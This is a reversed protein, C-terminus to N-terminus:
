SILEALLDPASIGQQCKGSEIDHVLAVIRENAPCAVAVTKGQRVVAGNLYEVESLKGQSLDWWMSTRVTPDVALMKQAFLRFLFNPLTIFGPIRQAPIATLKPLVLQKKAAVAVWEKMLLAICRRYDRQELMSKVPVDALANVANALNLQLKAALVAQMETSGHVPMLPCNIQSVLQKIDDADSEICLDGESGRHLHGPKIQAVNFPVMVRLVRNHPFREKVLADSGLGNQCCFIITRDDIWTAVEALAAAVATCKVTLWLFQCPATSDSSSIVAAANDAAVFVPAAIVAENGQYDSLQMGGAYKEQVSARAIMAVSVAQSAMVGSLYGGILGAGFILHQQM